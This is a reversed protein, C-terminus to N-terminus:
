SRDNYSGRICGTSFDWRIKSRMWNRFLINDNFLGFSQQILKERVIKM